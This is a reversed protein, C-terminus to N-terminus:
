NYYFENSVRKYIPLAWGVKFGSLVDLRRTNDEEMLDFNYGRKNTTWAQVFEFGFYFNLMRNNSLHLYGIFQTIALGNTLRDYGKKYADTLQPTTGTIHIRHQLLGIGGTVLLGSNENPGLLGDGFIHPLVKGCTLFLSYGREFMDITAPEGFEDIITGESTRINDFIEQDKVNKGFLFDYRAGFILNKRTKITFSGGLAGTLGFRDVMDGGPFLLTTSPSVLPILLISDKPSVQALGAAAGLLLFLCSNYIRKKM